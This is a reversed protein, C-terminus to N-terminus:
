RAPADDADKKERKKTYAIRLKEKFEDRSMKVKPTSTPSILNPIVMGPKYFVGRIVIGTKAPSRALKQPESKQFEPLEVDGSYAATQSEPLERVRTYNEQAIQRKQPDTFPGPDNEHPHMGGVIKGTGSWYQVQGNLGHAIQLMAEHMRGQDHPSIFSPVWVLVDTHGTNDPLISRGPMLYERVGQPSTTHFKNFEDTVQQSIKAVLGPNLQQIQPSHSPFRLHMMQETGGYHPVFVLIGEQNAMSGVDAAIKQLQSAAIPRHFVTAMSPELKSEWSGIGHLHTFEEPKVDSDFPLGIYHRAISDAASVFDKQRQSFLRFAAQQAILPDPRDYHSSAMMQPLLRPLAFKLKSTPGTPVHKAYHEAQLEDNTAWPRDHPKLHSARYLIFGHVNGRLLEPTM